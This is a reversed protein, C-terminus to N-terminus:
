VPDDYWSFNLALFLLFISLGSLFGHEVVSAILDTSGESQVKIKGFANFVGFYACYAVMLTRPFVMSFKCVSTYFAVFKQRILRRKLSDPFLGLFNFWNINHFSCLCAVTYIVTRRSIRENVWTEYEAKSEASAKRGPKLASFHNAVVYVNILLVMLLVGLPTFRFFGKEVDVLNASVSSDKVAVIFLQALSITEILNSIIVFTVLLSMQRLCTMKLTVALSFLVVTIYALPIDSILKWAILRSPENECVYGQGTFSKITGVPCDSVCLGRLLYFESQCLM